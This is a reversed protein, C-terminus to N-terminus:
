FGDLLQLTLDYGLFVFANVIFARALCPTFGKYLGAIGTEAVIKKYTGIVGPHPGHRYTDHIQIRSKIMDIPYCTTWFAAGAAGGALLMDPVTLIGDTRKPRLARKVAINAGFYFSVFLERIVCAGYGQFLSAIGQKRVMFKAMQVPGSFKLKANSQSQVQLKCKLVDVPALPLALSPAILIGTIFAEQVTPDSPDVCLLKRAASNSGFIFINQLGAGAVPSLMGRFFGQFGEAKMTDNFVKMVSPRGEAAQMKLKLTDLPHGSVTQFVGAMSGAAVEKALGAFTSFRGKFDEEREAKNKTFQIKKPQDGSM